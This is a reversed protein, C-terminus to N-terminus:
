LTMPLLYPTSWGAERTKPYSLPFPPPSDLLTLWTIMAAAVAGNEVPAAKPSAEKTTVLVTLSVAIPFNFGSHSGLSCLLYPFSSLFRMPSRWSHSSLPSHTRQDRIRQSRVTVTHTGGLTQWWQRHDFQFVELMMEKWGEKEALHRDLELLSFSEM